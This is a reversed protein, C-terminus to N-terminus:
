ESDIHCYCAIHFFEICMVHFKCFSRCVYSLQIENSDNCFVNGRDQNASGLCACPFIMELIKASDSVQLAALCGAQLGTDRLDELVLLLGSDELHSNDKDQSGTSKLLWSM